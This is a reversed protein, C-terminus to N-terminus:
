TTRNDRNPLCRCSTVWIPTRHNMAPRRFAKFCSQKLKWLRDELRQIRESLSNIQHEHDDKLAQIVRLVSLLAIGMVTPDCSIAQLFELENPRLKGMDPNM